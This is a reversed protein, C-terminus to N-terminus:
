YTNFTQWAGPVIRCRPFVTTLLIYLAKGEHVKYPLSFNCYFFILHIICYTLFIFYPVPSLSPQLNIHPLDPSLPKLLHYTLLPSSSIICLVVLIYLHFSTITPLINPTHLKPFLLSAHSPSHAFYLITTSAYFFLWSGHSTQWQSSKLKM